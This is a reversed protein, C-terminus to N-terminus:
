GRRRRWWWIGGLAILWVPSYVLSWILLDAGGRLSGVLSRVAMKFVVKPRWVKDPTYPLALEDTSLYVVIKTLKASQALYKQRGKLNDIQRQLSVLERQVQLLDPIEGAKELIAEFKVKTKYLVELRAEIDEYQDTVDRGQVRENVVKVALGRFKDLAEARKDEPVRVVISGSAAGEPVSLSSEVMFGGLRVAIQEIKEIEEEVSEVLLSLNTDRIVLRDESESPAVENRIPSPMVGGMARTLGAEGMEAVPVGMMSGDRGVFSQNRSNIAKFFGFKGWGLWIVVVLLLLLVLKNRGLWDFFDRM